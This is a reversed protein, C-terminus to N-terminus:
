KEKNQYMVSIKVITVSNKSSHSILIIKLCYRYPKVYM